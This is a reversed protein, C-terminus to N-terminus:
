KNGYIFQNLRKSIKFNLNSTNLLLCFPIGLFVLGTTRYRVIAGVNTVTYGLLLYFSLGFVFCFLIIRKEDITLRKPTSFILACLALAILCYNQLAPLILFIRGNSQLLNPRLFVNYVASPFLTFLSSATPKLKTMEFNTTGNLNLFHNQVEIFKPLIINTSPILTSAILSCFGLAYIAVFPLWWQRKFYFKSISYAMIAPLLLLITYNRSQYGLYISIVFFIFYLVSFKKFLKSLFFLILGISFFILAEKHVGSSWYLISPTLFLFFLFSKRHQKTEKRFFLYIYIIGIHSLAAFLIRHISYFGFSFLRFFANIKVIFSSRPTGYYGIEKFNLIELYDNPLQKFDSGFVLRIYKLPHKPLFKMYAESAYFFSFTDGWHNKYALYGYMYSVLVKLLFFCVIFVNSLGTKKSLNSKSIAFCLISIYLLNLLEEFM